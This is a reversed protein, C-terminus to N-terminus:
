LLYVITTITHPSIIRHHEVLISLLVSMPQQQLIITLTQTEEIPPVKRYQRRHSIYPTGVRIPVSPKKIGKRYIKVTHTHVLDPHQQTTHCRPNIRNGIDYDIGSM